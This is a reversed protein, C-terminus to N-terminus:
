SLKIAIFPPALPLKPILSRDAASRNGGLCEHRRVLGVITPQRWLTAPFTDSGIGAAVAVDLKKAKAIRETTLCASSFPQSIAVEVKPLEREFVSNARM